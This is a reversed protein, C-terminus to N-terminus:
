PASAQAGAMALMLVVVNTAEPAWAAAAAAPLGAAHTALPMHQSALRASRLPRSSVSAKLAVMLPHTPLHAHPARCPNVPAHQARPCSPPSETAFAKHAVLSGYM